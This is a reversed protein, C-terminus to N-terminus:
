VSAMYADACELMREIEGEQDVDFWEITERRKFWTRQRRAYAWIDLSLTEIFSEVTKTDHQAGAALWDALYRYELGLARMRDLSVGKSQLREAEEFMGADIREIIRARIRARYNETDAFRCGIVLANFRPAADSREPVAGLATAIEIARILRHPNEPEITAARRPDLETLKAFLEENSLKSLSARLEPNPDVDPLSVDDLIADIYQGTGGCIIPLKGRSQIDAIVALAERQFRMVSYSDNVDVIDIMHHPVGLTEEPTVKGTGLDLGRYVQRSDASIVEGNHRLAIQVALATKGTATQGVVAILHQQPSDIGKESM